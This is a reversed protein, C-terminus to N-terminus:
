QLAIHLVSDEFREKINISLQAIKQCTFLKAVEIGAECDDKVKQYFLFFPEETVYSLYLNRFLKM